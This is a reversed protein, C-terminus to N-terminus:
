LIKTSRERLSAQLSLRTRTRFPEVEPKLLKKVQKNRETKKRKLRPLTDYTGCKTYGLVQSYIKRRRTICSTSQLMSTTPSTCLFWSPCGKEKSDRDMSVGVTWRRHDEFCIHMSIFRTRTRSEEKKHKSKVAFCLSFLVAFVLSPSFSVVKAGVVVLQILFKTSTMRNRPCRDICHLVDGYSSLFSISPPHYM